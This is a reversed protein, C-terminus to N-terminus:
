RSCCHGSYTGCDANNMKYVDECYIMKNGAMSVLQKNELRDSVAMLMATLKLSSIVTGEKIMTIEVNKRATTFRTARM